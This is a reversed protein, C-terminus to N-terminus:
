AAVSGRVAWARATLAISGDPGVPLWRRLLERLEDQRDKTLAAVYGPAPGQGGLFPTWFDDFDRFVTPVVIPEVAVEALGAALWLAQLPGPRCLPFRVGEDLDAAASACAVAADWFYRLMLMGEAYDWVYAAVTGGPATVRVFQALADAPEPVFNLMLGSVVVDQSDDPQPLATADGVDFTARADAIRSRARDVFSASADIGHVHAPDANALVSATVAGAGCGIDLWRRGPVIGLSTVFIDAVPRSWRGMYAEYADGHVWVDDAM